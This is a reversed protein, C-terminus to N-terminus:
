DALDFLLAQTPETATIVLSSEDRLGIADGSKLSLDAVTLGGRAVHLWGIRGEEFDYDLTSGPELDTVLVRVAQAVPMPDGKFGETERDDVALWQWRNARDEAAFSRQAYRPEAGSERPVIWIQLFHVQESDSANFESHRIGRGATMMQLEGPRLEQLNGLSDGHKLGGELVWTMIEMDRHPHEGFGQGPQVIDDNIVRLPGFGMAQADQYAGFSFTHRSYLWDLSTTGRTDAPRHLIM